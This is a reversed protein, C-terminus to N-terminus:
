QKEEKKPSTTSSATTANPDLTGTTHAGHAVLNQKITEATDVPLTFIVGHLGGDTDRYQITLTDLKSRFLSLFRGGGYPAAMSIMGVTKGVARQTDSGTVVDQISAASVDSSAKAHVFHLNGDEVDLTGKANDKVGPLGTLQVVKVSGPVQQANGISIAFSAVFLAVAVCFKSRRIM